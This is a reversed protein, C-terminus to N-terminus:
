VRTRSTEASGWPGNVIYGETCSPVPNTAQIYFPAGTAKADRWRLLVSNFNPSSVRKTAKTAQATFLNRLYVVNAESM